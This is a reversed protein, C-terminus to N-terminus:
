YKAFRTKGWETKVYIIWSSLFLSWDYFRVLEQQFQKEVKAYPFTVNTFNFIEEWVRLLMENSVIYNEISYYDTVHIKPSAPFTEGLYNSFDKDVFFIVIINDRGSEVVKEYTKYVEEKNGCKYAKLHKGEKIYQAIFGKYFSFDDHGEFFAHVDEPYDPFNKIFEQFATAASERSYRLEDVFSM